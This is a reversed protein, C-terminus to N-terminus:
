GSMIQSSTRRTLYLRAASRVTRALSTPGFSPPIFRRAVALIDEGVIRIEELDLTGLGGESCTRIHNIQSPDFGMIHCCTADVTVPRSGAVIVKAQVPEGYLPGNGEMGVIGDVLVLHRRIAQNVELLIRDLSKHMSPKNRDMVLGFSNKLSLTVTTGASTKLKPLNVVCDAETVLKPFHFTVNGVNKTVFDRELTLNRFPVNLRRLLAPLGLSATRREASGSRNDSEVVVIENTREKLWELVAEILRFDTVIMDNPNRDYCINPKVIVSEGHRISGAETIDLLSDIAEKSPYSAKRIGVTDM